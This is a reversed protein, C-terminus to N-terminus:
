QKRCHTLAENDNTCGVHKMTVAFFRTRADCVGQMNMCMKKKSGTM